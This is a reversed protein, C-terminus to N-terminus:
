RHRVHAAGRRGASGHIPGCHRVPCSHVQCHPPQRFRLRRACFAAARSPPLLCSGEQRRKLSHEGRYRHSGAKSCTLPPDAEMRSPVPDISAASKPQMSKRINVNGTTPMGPTKTTNHQDAHQTIGTNNIMERMADVVADHVEERFAQHISQSVEDPEFPIDGMKHMVNELAQEVVGELSVSKAVAHAVKRAPVEFMESILNHQAPTSKAWDEEFVAMMKKVVKPEHFVVGIERRAEM